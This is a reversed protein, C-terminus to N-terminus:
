YPQVWVCVYAHLEQTTKVLIRRVSTVNKSCWLKLLDPSPNYMYVVYICTVSKSDTM